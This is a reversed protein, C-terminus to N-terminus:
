ETRRVALTAAGILGSDNGYSAPSIIVTEAPRRHAKRLGSSVAAEFYPDRGCYKRLIMSANLVGGGITVFRPNFTNIAISLGTGLWEGAVRFSDLAAEDGDQARAVVDQFSITADTALNGQLKLFHAAIAPASAVAELCGYQGCSCRITQEQTVKWHGFNGANGDEGVVLEGAVVSAGGIGTGVVFHCLHRCESSRPVFEAWAAARGDNVTVVTKIEPFLAKVVIRWDIQSYGTFHGANLVVGQPSVSGTTSIGLAQVEPHHRLADGLTSLLSDRLESYSRERLEIPRGMEAVVAIADKEIRVLAHKLSSGGIDFAYAYM